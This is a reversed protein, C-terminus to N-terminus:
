ALAVAVHVALPALAAAAATAPPLGLSRRLGYATLATGALSVLLAIPDHPDLAYLGTPTLAHPGRTFAVIPPKLTYPLMSGARVLAYALPSPRSGLLAATVYMIASDVAAFLVPVLVAAVAARAAVGPLAALVRVGEEQALRLTLAAGTFFFSALAAAVTASLLFAAKVALRTEPSAIRRLTEGFFRRPELVARFLGILGNFAALFPAQPAGM